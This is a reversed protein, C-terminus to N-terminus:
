RESRGRDFDIKLIEFDAYEQEGEPPRWAVSARMPVLLGWQLRYDGYRGLWTTRVQEKGVSRYREDSEFSAILGNEGFRFIGSAELSGDRVIARASREDVGEWRVGEGPVLATPFWPTEALWRLLASVSVEPGRATALPILSAMRVLMEGYGRHYLDRARVPVFGASRITGTWLLAPPDTTFWEQGRIPLWDGEPDTRFRGAHELTILRARPRGQVGALQLYRLVPGPLEPESLEIIPRSGEAEQKLATVEMEIRRDLARRAVILPAVILIGILVIIPILDAFM